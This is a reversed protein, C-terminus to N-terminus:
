LGGIEADGRGTLARIISTKGQQVKGLLWFVPTPLSQRAEALIDEIQRSDVQPSIRKWLRLWTDYTLRM